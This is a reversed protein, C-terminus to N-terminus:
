LLYPIRLKSLHRLSMLWHCAAIRCVSSFHCAFSFSSDRWLFTGYDSSCQKRLDCTECPWRFFNRVSGYERSATHPVLARDSTNQPTGSARGTSGAFTRIPVSAFGTACLSVLIVAGVAGLSRIAQIATRCLEVLPSGRNSTSAAVAESQAIVGPGSKSALIRM